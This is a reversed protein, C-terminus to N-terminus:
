GGICTDDSITKVIYLIRNTYDQQNISDMFGDIVDEGNFTITVVGIKEQLPM